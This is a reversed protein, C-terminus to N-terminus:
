MTRALEGSLLLWTSKYLRRQLEAPTVEAFLADIEKNFFDKVATAILKIASQDEVGRYTEEYLGHHQLIGAARETIPSRAACGISKPQCHEQLRESPFGSPASSDYYKALQETTPSLFFLLDDMELFSLNDSSTKALAHALQGADFRHGEPLGYEIAALKTIQGVGVGLGAHITESGRFSFLGEGRQDMERKLEKLEANSFLDAYEKPANETHFGTVHNLSDWM